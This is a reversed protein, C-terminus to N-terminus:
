LLATWGNTAPRHLCSGVESSHSSGSVAPQLGIEQGGGGQGRVGCGGGVATALIGFTDEGIQVFRGLLFPGKSTQHICRFVRPAEAEHDVPPHPLVTSPNSSYPAAAGSARSSAGGAAARGGAASSSAAAAGGGPGAEGSLSAVAATASSGSGSLSNLTVGPFCTCALKYPVTGSLHQHYRTVKARRSRGSPPNSVVLVFRDRTCFNSPQDTPQNTLNLSFTVSLYCLGRVLQMKLLLDM